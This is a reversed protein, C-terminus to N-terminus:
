AQKGKLRYTKRNDMGKRGGSERVMEAGVVKKGYGGDVGDMMEKIKRGVSEENSYRVNEGGFVGVGGRTVM